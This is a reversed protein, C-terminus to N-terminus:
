WLGVLFGDFSVTFGCFFGDFSVTFGCFEGVVVGAVGLDEVSWWVRWRFGMGPTSRDGCVWRFGM